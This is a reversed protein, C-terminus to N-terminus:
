RSRLVANLPRLLLPFLARVDHIEALVAVARGQGITQYAKTYGPRYYVDPISASDVLSDWLRVDGADDASLLRAARTSHQLTCCNRNHRGPSARM